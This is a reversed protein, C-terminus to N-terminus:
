DEMGCKKCVVDVGGTERDRVFRLTNILKCNPCQAHNNVNIPVYNPNPSSLIM